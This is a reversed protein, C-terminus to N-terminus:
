QPIECVTSKEKKKQHRTEEKRGFALQDSKIKMIWRRIGPVLYAM